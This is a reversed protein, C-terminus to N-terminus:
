SSFAKENKNEQSKYEALKNDLTRIAIGLAKATNIKHGNFYKLAELIIQQEAFKLTIGPQWIM